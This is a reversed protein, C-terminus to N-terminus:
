VARPEEHQVSEDPDRLVIVNSHRTSNMDLEVTAADTEELQLADM